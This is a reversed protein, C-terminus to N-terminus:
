PFACEVHDSVVISRRDSFRISNFKVINIVSMFAYRLENITLPSEPQTMQEYAYRFGTTRTCDTWDYAYLGRRSFATFADPHPVSLITKAKCLEPLARINQEAKDAFRRDALVVKPIPGKGANSFIAICGVADTALWASDCEMPWQGDLSM